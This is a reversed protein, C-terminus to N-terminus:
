SRPLRGFRTQSEAILGRTLEREEDIKRESNPPAANKM